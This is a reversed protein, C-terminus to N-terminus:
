QRRADDGRGAAGKPAAHEKFSGSRVTGHLCGTRPKFEGFIKDSYYSKLFRREADFGSVDTILPLNFAARLTHRM